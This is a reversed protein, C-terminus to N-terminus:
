GRCTAGYDTETQQVLRRARSMIISNRARRNKHKQKM